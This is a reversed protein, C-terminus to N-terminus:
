GAERMSHQLRNLQSRISTDIMKSGVKVVLGGILSEDVQVDLAVERGVVNKLTESLAKRQADSMAHASVVEATMEGRHDAVRKRFLSLMDRLVFLRRKSAMVAVTNTVLQSLGMAQAVAVIARRQDDRPYLPSEALARLDASEDLAAALADVDRETTELAGTELALDFLAAAYRDAVGATDLSTDAV